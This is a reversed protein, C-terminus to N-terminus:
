HVSLSAWALGDDESPLNASQRVKNRYRPRRKAPLLRELYSGCNLWSSILWDVKILRRFFFLPEANKRLKM